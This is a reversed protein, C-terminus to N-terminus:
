IRTLFSIDVDTPGAAWMSRWESRPPIDPRIRSIYAWSLINEEWARPDWDSPMSGTRWFSRWLLQGNMRMTAEWLVCLPRRSFNTLAACLVFVVFTLIMPSPNEGLAGIVRGAIMEGAGTASLASALSLTGGFLFITKLDISKLADKESIVGTLILALAGICGSISLKIGIKDEFIMALLTLVLIILSLWQKWASVGSFDKETDFAGDDKVEHGPLLRYGVTAYFVIGVILIPLGVIAYEFFGFSLQIEQLASQAILNGPAGILSLNGGMAAAFVLPMLLRSRKYGSKAAIGIVVPILVAATGTNSLVGSMLGVIVMIAIILMRESRAFRTVIGGIRNAMGTEFLAGGVIFMAVFLIVNSDIFGSFATKVDLVGTVVLGICVIMSTVGLPIKEFVFMVVAFLLFVLTIISPSM